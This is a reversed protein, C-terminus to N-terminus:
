PTEGKDTPASLVSIAATVRCGPRHGKERKKAGCFVCKYMAGGLVELYAVAKDMATRQLELAAFAADRQATLKEIEKSM